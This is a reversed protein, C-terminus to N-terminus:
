LDYFLVLLCLRRNEIQLYGDIDRKITISGDEIVIKKVKIDETGNDLDYMRRAM